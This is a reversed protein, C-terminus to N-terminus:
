RGEGVTQARRTIRSHCAHALSRLNAQDWVAGGNEIPTIHDVDTAIETCTQDPCQCLPHDFLQKRRLMAWRKSNYIPKNRHTHRERKRAHTACRGRYTAPQPCGPTLCVRNM